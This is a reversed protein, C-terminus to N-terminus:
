ELSVSMHNPTAPGGSDAVSVALVTSQRHGFTAPLTVRSGVPIYDTGIPFAASTSSVVEDGDKNRVMRTTDAVSGLVTVASSYVDEGYGSTGEFREVTIPHTWWDALYDRRPM